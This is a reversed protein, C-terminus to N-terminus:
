YLLEVPVSLARRNCSVKVKKASLSHIIASTVQISVSIVEIVVYV